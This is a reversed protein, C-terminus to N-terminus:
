PAGEEDTLSPGPSPGDARWDEAEDITMPLESAVAKGHDWPLNAFLSGAPSLLMKRSRDPPAYDWRILDLNAGISADNPRTM